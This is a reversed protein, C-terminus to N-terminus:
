SLDKLDYGIEKRRHKKQLRSFFSGLAYGLATFAAYVPLAYWLIPTYYRGAGGRFPPFSLSTLFDKIFNDFPPPGMMWVANYQQLAAILPGDHGSLTLFLANNGLILGLCALFALGFKWGDKVRFEVMGWLAPLSSSLFLFTHCFWFRAFEWQFLSRGLFWFPFIPAVLGACSGVYFQFQKLLANGSFVAVPCLLILAACVNYATNVIGFPNGWMHPWVYSKLFHQAINLGMIVALAGKKVARSAGKLSFHLGFFLVAILLLSFLHATDFLTM